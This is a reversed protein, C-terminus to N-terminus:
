KTTALRIRAAVTQWRAGVSMDDTCEGASFPDSMPAIGSHV